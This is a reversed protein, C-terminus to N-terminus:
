MGFLDPKRFFVSVWFLSLLIAPAFPSSLGTFLNIAIAGGLYSCILLFGINITRPVLFLTVICLELIALPMIKDEMGPLPMKVAGPKFLFLKVCASFLLMLAPLLYFYKKLTTM